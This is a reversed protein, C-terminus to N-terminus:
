EIGWDKLLKPNDKFWLRLQDQLEDQEVVIHWMPTEPNSFRDEMEPERPLLLVWVVVERRGELKGAEFAAEWTAKAQAEAVLQFDVTIDLPTNKVINEMDLKDLVTDQWKTKAEMM